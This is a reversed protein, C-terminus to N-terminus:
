KSNTKDALQIVSTYVKVAADMGWIFDIHNYYEIHKHDIVKGTSQLKPLLDAIDEPDALWDNGGTFLAMPVTITSVNYAPSPSQPLVTYGCM